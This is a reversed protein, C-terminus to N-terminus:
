HQPAPHRPADAPARPRRGTLTRALFEAIAAEDPEFERIVRIDTERKAAAPM